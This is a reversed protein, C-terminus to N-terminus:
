VIKWTSSVLYKNDTICVYEIDEKKDQVERLCEYNGFIFTLISYRYTHKM